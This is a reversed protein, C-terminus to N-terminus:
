RSLKFTIPLRYSVSVHEGHHKGPIWQPMSRMVRLAEEDCSNQLSKLVKINKINGNKDVVFGILVIGEIQSQLAPQPYKLNSSLFSSLAKSGGPFQPMIDVFHFPAEDSNKPANGEEETNGKQNEKSPNTSNQNEETKSPSPTEIKVEDEEVVKPTNSKQITPKAEKIIENASSNEITKIQIKPINPLQIESIHEQIPDLVYTDANKNQLYDIIRPLYLVTVVIISSILLGLSLYRHYSKRIQYAGYLKNRHEFSLETMQLWLPNLNQLWSKISAMM